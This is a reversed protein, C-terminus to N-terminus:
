AHRKQKPQVHQPNKNLLHRLGCTSHMKDNCECRIFILSQCVCTSGCEDQINEDFASLGSSLISLVVVGLCIEGSNVGRSAQYPTVNSKLLFFLSSPRVSLANAMWTSSSDCGSTEKGGERHADLKMEGSQM